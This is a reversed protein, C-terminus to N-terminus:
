RSAPRPASSAPGFRCTPPSSPRDPPPPSTHGLGFAASMGAAVASVPPGAFGGLAAIKGILGLVFSTTTSGGGSGVAAVLRDTLDQITISGVAKDSPKQLGAFYTRVRTVMSLEALLHSRVATYDAATFGM